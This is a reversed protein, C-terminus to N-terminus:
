AIASWSSGLAVSPSKRSAHRRELVRIARRMSPGHAGRRAPNVSGHRRFARAAARARSSLTLERASSNSAMVDVYFVVISKTTGRTM